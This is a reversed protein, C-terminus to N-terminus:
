FISCCASLFAEGRESVLTPIKKSMSLIIRFSWVLDKREYSVQLTRQTWEGLCFTIPETPLQVRIGLYHVQPLLPAASVLTTSGAKGEKQLSDYWISQITNPSM